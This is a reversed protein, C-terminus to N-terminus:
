YIIHTKPLLFLFIPHSPLLLTRPPLTSVFSTHPKANPHMSFLHCLFPQLWLGGFLHASWGILIPVPRPFSQPRVHYTFYPISFLLNFKIPSSNFSYWLSNFLPTICHCFSGSIFRAIPASCSLVFAYNQYPLVVPPEATKGSGSKSLIFATHFTPNLWCSSGRPHLPHVWHSPILPIVHVTCVQM